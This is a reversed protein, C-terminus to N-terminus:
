ETVELIQAFNNKHVEYAVGDIQVRVMEDGVFLWDPCGEIVEGNPLKIIATMNDDRSPQLRSEKDSCGSLLMAAALMLVILKKM